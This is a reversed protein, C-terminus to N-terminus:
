VCVYVRVRLHSGPITRGAGILIVVTEKNYEFNMGLFSRIIGSGDLTVVKNIAAFVEQRM